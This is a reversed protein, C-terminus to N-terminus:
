ASGIRSRSNSGNTDNQLSSLSCSWALCCSALRPGVRTATLGAPSAPTANDGKDAIPVNSSAIASWSRVRALASALKLWALDNSALNSPSITSEGLSSALGLHAASVAGRDGGSSSSSAAGDLGRARTDLKMVLKRERLGLSARPEVTGSM